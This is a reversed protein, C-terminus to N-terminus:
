SGFGSSFGQSFGGGGGGGMKSQIWAITNARNGGTVDQSIIHSYLNFGLAFTSNPYGGVKYVGGASPPFLNLDIYELVGNTEMDTKLQASDDVQAVGDIAVQGFTMQNVSPSGASLESLQGFYQNSSFVGLISNGATTAGGWFVHANTIDPTAVATMTDDVGDFQLYYGNVADGALQPRRAADSQSAHMDNGSKDLIYGVPQGVATVPTTKTWEQWMTSFDSPDYWLGVEGALFLDAPTFAVAPTVLIGNSTNSVSGCANTAGEVATITQGEWASIVDLSAGGGQSSAGVFWLHGTINLPPTGDYTGSSGFFVKTGVQGTGTIAPATVISIPICSGGGETVYIGGLEGVRIGGVWVDGPSVPQDVQCKLAGTETVPLGGVHGAVAGGTIDICLDGNIMFGKGQDFVQPTNGSIHIRGDETVKVGGVAADTPAPADNTVRLTGDETVSAQPLM